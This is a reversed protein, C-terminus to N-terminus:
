SSEDKYIDATSHNRDPYNCVYNGIFWTSHWGTVSQFQAQTDRWQSADADARLINLIQFLTIKALDGHPAISGLDFKTQKAEIM